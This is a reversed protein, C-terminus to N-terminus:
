LLVPTRVVNMANLVQFLTDKIHIGAESKQVVHLRFESSHVKPPMNPPRHKASGFDGVLTASHRNAM